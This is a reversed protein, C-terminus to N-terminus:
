CYPARRRISIQRLRLSGPSARELWRRQDADLAIAADEACAFQSRCHGAREAFRRRQYSGGVQPRKAALDTWNRRASYPWQSLRPNMVDRRDLIQLPHQCRICTCTRNRPTATPAADDARAVLWRDRTRHHPFRHASIGAFLLSSLLIPYHPPSGRFVRRPATRRRDNLGEGHRICQAAAFGYHRFDIGHQALVIYEHLNSSGSFWM